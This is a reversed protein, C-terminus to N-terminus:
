AVQFPADNWITPHRANAPDYRRVAARSIYAGELNDCWPLGSAAMRAHMQELDAFLEASVEEETVVLFDIDSSADFGGGALSGHLYLGVYQSGLVRRVEDYLLAINTNVDHYSTFMLSTLSSDM